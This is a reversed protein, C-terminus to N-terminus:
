KNDEDKLGNKIGKAIEGAAKGITPSMEDIGEKAVPMVQQAQFALIERRKAFMFIAGAFMCSSIIVFAGFMYLPISKSSEYSKDFGDTLDKLQTKLSCYRSTYSNNKADDFSCHNFDSDLANNIINIGKSNEDKKNSILCYSSTLSNNKYEDFACNDSSPDLAKTIIKLDYSEGDDYKAFSDYKIGKATLESKKAELKQKEANLAETRKTELENRKSELNAKEVDLEKQLNAKSESSYNSNVKAQKILGTAILSGGILLGVVLVILAVTTIKKKNKQYREENLYTKNEM